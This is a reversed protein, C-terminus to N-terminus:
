TTESLTVSLSFLLILAITGPVFQFVLQGCYSTFLILNDQLFFKKLEIVLIYRPGQMFRLHCIGPMFLTMEGNRYNAFM